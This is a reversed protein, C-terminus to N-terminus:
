CDKYLEGTMLLSLAQLVAWLPLGAVFGATMLSATGISKIAKVFPNRGNVAVVDSYEIRETKGDGSLTRTHTVSFESDSVLSITGSLSGGNKLLVIVRKDRGSAQKIRVRIEDSSMAQGQSRSQGFCPSTISLM